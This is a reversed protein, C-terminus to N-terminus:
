LAGPHNGRYDSALLQGEVTLIEVRDLEISEYGVSTMVREAYGAASGEAIWDSGEVVIALVGQVPSLWGVTAYQISDEAFSHFGAAGQGNLYQFIKQDAWEQRGEVEQLNDAYKPLAAIQQSVSPTQASAEFQLPACSALSSALVLGGAVVSAKRLADIAVCRWQIGSSIVQLVMCDLM